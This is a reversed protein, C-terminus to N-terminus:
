LFFTINMDTKCKSDKQDWLNQYPAGLFEVPIEMPKYDPPLTWTAFSILILIWLLHFKATPIEQRDHADDM